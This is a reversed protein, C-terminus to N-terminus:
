QTRPTTTARLLQRDFEREVRLKELEGSAAELEGETISLRREMEALSKAVNRHKAARQTLASAGALLVAPVLFEPQGSAAAVGLMLVAGVILRMPSKM